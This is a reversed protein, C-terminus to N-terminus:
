SHSLALGTIQGWIFTYAGLSFLAILLAASLHVPISLQLKGKELPFRRALQYILPTLFMWISACLLWSALTQKFGAKRGFYLNSLYAQCGFFVGYLTWGIIGLIIIRWHIGLIKM